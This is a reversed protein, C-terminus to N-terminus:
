CLSNSCIFDIIIFSFERKEYSLINVSCFGYSTGDDCLMPFAPKFQYNSTRQLDHAYMFWGDISQNFPNTLDYIYLMDSSLGVLELDRDSNIDSLVLNLYTYSINIPFNDVYSCDENFAYITKTVGDSPIIIEVKGDNDIDGTVISSSSFLNNNTRNIPWCGNGFDSGDLNYVYLNSHSEMYAYDEYNVLIIIEINGDGNLDGYVPNSYWCDEYSPCTKTWLINGNTDLLSLGDWGSVLIEYVGDNNLDVIPMDGMSYYYGGTFMPYGSYIVGNLNWAYLQGYRSLVLVEFLNDHNLDAFSLSKDVLEIEDLIKPNFGSLLNGNHDWGFIYASNTYWDNALLFIELNGDNNVDLVSLAGYSSFSTEAFYFQIPWGPLSVGYKDLCGIKFGSDNLKEFYFMENKGDHNIDGFAPSPNSYDFSGKKPWGYILKGDGNYVYINESDNDDSNYGRTFFVLEKDSDGDLDVVGLSNSLFYEDSKPRKPWGPLYEESVQLRIPVEKHIVGNGTKIRLNFNIIQGPELSNDARFVFWSTKEEMMSMNGYFTNSKLFTIGSNQTSLTANVNTTYNWDNRLDVFLQVTEGPSLYGDGNGVSSDKITYGRYVINKGPLLTLAKNANVRGAGLLSYNDLYNDPDLVINDTTSLTQGIVLDDSWGPNHSKVLGMVGAVMATSVGSDQGYHYDEGCCYTSKIQKGPAGIDVWKDDIAGYNSGPYDTKRDDFYDTSGVAIVGDYAAPYTKRWDSSYDGASSLVIANESAYKAITELFSSNRPSSWGVSIIDANNNVAYYIASAISQTTGKGESDLSKVAMIKCNPCTGAVGVGASSTYPTSNVIAYFSNGNVLSSNYYGNDVDILLDNMHWLIGRNYSVESPYSSYKRILADDFYSDLIGDILNLKYTRDNEDGSFWIYGQGVSVGWPSNDLDGIYYSALIGGALNMKYIRDTASDINWLNTGDWDLGRPESGPSSFSNSIINSSPGLDHYIPDVTNGTVTLITHWNSGDYYQLNYDVPRYHYQVKIVAKDLQIPSSFSLTIEIPDGNYVMYATGTNGDNIKNITYLENYGPRNASATAGLAYNVGNDNNYLELETIRIVEYDSMNFSDLINLRFKTMSFGAVDRSMEYILDQTPDSVWYKGNINTIGEPNSTPAIDYLEYSTTGIYSTYLNNNQSTTFILKNEDPVKSVGEFDNTLLYSSLIRGAGLSTTDPIVNNTEAAAVGALHSGHGNEDAPNSDTGLCGGNSCFDYGYYDDVFNNHDDDIGNGIIEQDNTWINNKLDLHDYNVGSDVIAIVVDESGQEVLWAETADIDADVVGGFQGVNKFAWQEGLYPDIPYLSCDIEDEEGNTDICDFVERPYDVCGDGDNDLGDNCTALDLVLSNEVVVRSSNDTENNEYIFYGGVYNPEAYDIADLSMLEELLENIDYKSTSYSLVFWNQLGFNFEKEGFGDRPFVPLISYDKSVLLDDDIQKRVNSLEDYYSEKLKILLDGSLYSTGDDLVQISKDVNYVENDPIEIQKGSYTLEGGYKFLDGFNISVVFPVVLVFILAIFHRKKM